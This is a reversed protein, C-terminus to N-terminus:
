PGADLVERVKGALADATFPKQLFATDPALADRDTIAGRTYGSLFLTRVGPRMVALQRAAERGSMGPMVVDCLLLQIVGAHNRAVGVAEHGSGAELVTYGYRELVRHTGKRVAENDEVLLITEKGARSVAPARAKRAPEVSETVVPLYVKFTTGRGPESYVWINGGSQKVIGFVTALGLGTGKGEEKTTFFPEFLHVQTDPDMGVGTDSVALMMYAGPKVSVHTAAYTEDLDVSATEITLKGGDPMADRSNVALNVIVQQLQSPDARVAGLGPSLVTRLEIDDGILRRLLGELEGVVANVDIVRPALVQRRGFALLQRTLDSGHLAAKHVAEAEERGPAGPELAELLHGASMLMVTLLNNFDHAVGGALRGVAEMKQAQRLQAELLQQRSLDHAITSLFQVRGDPARHALIVQRVPIERGDRARMVSEGAWAGDRIAAPIAEKLLHDRAAITHTEAIALGSIEEDPPIGLLVRGGRNMFMARGEADALGVLDPTAELVAVLRAQAAEAQKRLTIDVSTGEFGILHGRADRVARAEESVWITSGDKRYAQSEFGHVAGHESVLRIFEDRRGPLVYFQRSLDGVAAMLEDPSAYGYLRALTPNALVYRGDITTQFIGVVANEFLGRYREEAERLASEAREREAVEARLAATREDVLKELHEHLRARELAVAVQNGVGYLVQLDEDSFMGEDPGALNMIGITQDGVWLPVAAHYRLGRTDGKAKQLRECELINTVSGLEGALLKRRCVCEGQLAQPAELAPPLGRVAAARFGSEGERLSIWGAQVGPLELARELAIAAVQAETEAGNLGQAIRYLGHLSQHSHALDEERRRLEQNQRVADEFTSILLDLIQEREATIMFERGLFLVKVGMHIKARARTAKTTLLVELRDLLNAPEVSKTFFNDAGCELGRIIDLPDSLSTLLVVPTEPRKGAKIRRCLEYGDVPGPMVVDSIVVAFEQADCRAVGEEGNAALAVEYGAGALLARLAEAQTPSDEVVLVRTPPRRLNM